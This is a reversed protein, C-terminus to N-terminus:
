SGTLQSSRKLIGSRQGRKEKIWLSMYAAIAWHTEPRLRIAGGYTCEYLLSQVNEGILIDRNMQNTNWYFFKSPSLFSIKKKVEM